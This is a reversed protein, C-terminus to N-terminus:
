VEWSSWGIFCAVQLTCVLVPRKTNDLGLIRKGISVVYINGIDKLIQVAKFNHM